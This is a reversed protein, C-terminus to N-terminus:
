CVGVKYSREYYMAYCLLIYIWLRLVVLVLTLVSRLNVQSSPNSTVSYKIWMQVDMNSNVIGLIDLLHGTNLESEQMSNDEASYAYETDPWESGHPSM